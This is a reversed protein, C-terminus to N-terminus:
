IGINHKLTETFNSYAFEAGLELLKKPKACISDIVLCSMEGFLLYLVWRPIRMWVSTHLVKGLEKAFNEQTLSCDTCFNFPGEIDPKKLLFLIQYALDELSIWSIVEKGSGITAGLHYRFLPLIKKLMGGKSSLVVGFRMHICRGKFIKAKEEWALAVEALFSNGPKATESLEVQGQDGYYGIASASFFYQPPYKLNNLSEALFKTSRTRSQLIKLKKKKTWRWSFLNEGTLHIVAFIGELSRKDILECYPDWFIEEESKPKHRVLTKVHYGFLTLMLKLFSGVFGSAGSIVVTSSLLGKNKEYRKLDERFNKYQFELLKKAKAQIKKECLLRSLYGFRPILQIKDELTTACSSFQAISRRINIDYFFGLGSRYSFIYAKEFTSANKLIKWFSKTWPPDMRKLAEPKSLYDEVHSYKADLLISSAFSLSM